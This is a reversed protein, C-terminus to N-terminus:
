SFGTAVFEERVEALSEGVHEGHAGQLARRM